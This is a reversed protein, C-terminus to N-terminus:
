EYFANSRKLDSKSRRRKDAHGPAGNKVSVSIGAKRRRKGLLESQDYRCSKHQKIGSNEWIYSILDERETYTWVRWLNTFFHLNVISRQSSPSYYGMSFNPNKKIIECLVKDNYIYIPLKM